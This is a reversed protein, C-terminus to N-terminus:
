HYHEVLMLKPVNHLLPAVDISNNRVFALAAKRMRVIYSDKRVSM